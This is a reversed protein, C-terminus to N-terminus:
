PKQADPVSRGWAEWRKLFDSRDGPPTAALADFDGRFREELLLLKVMVAPRVELGRSKAMESRIGYANLFRKIGRPGSLQDASLGEALQSARTLTDDSPKAPLDDLDSLYPALNARRRDSCHTVLVDFQDDGIETHALLLGIYAEADDPSLRPLPVPLQVIKELYNEAFVQSRNSRELNAQIANKVMDQDAAIVFAMGKVSLFLKIAELTAMVADPLCRDLDDVLVVVRDVNPLAVVFKEFEGRFEALSQPGDQPDSPNLANVIKEPDWNMTLIGSAMAVGLRSWSVRKILKKVEDTLREDKAVETGLRTLIETILVGKPDLQDDYEWPNTPIVLWNKDSAAAILELVTSKGGGWPAHVGVTVPDLRAERLAAIVADVVVDFGLLDKTAPNDDWLGARLGAATAGNAVDSVGLLM